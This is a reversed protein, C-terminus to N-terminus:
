SFRVYGNTNVLITQLNSTANSGILNLNEEINVEFPASGPKRGNSTINRFTANNPLNLDTTINLTQSSAECYSFILFLLSAIIKKLYIKM